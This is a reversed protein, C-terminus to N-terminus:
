KKWVWREKGWISSGVVGLNWEGEEKEKKQTRKRREEYFDGRM